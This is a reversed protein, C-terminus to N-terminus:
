LPRKHEEMYIAAHRKMWRLEKRHEQVHHRYLFILLCLLCVLGFVAVLVLIM